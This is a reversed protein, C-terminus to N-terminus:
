LPKPTKGPRVRCTEWWCWCVALANAAVPSCVVLDESVGALGVFARRQQGPRRRGAHWTPQQRLKRKHLESELSDTKITFPVGRWTPSSAVYGM